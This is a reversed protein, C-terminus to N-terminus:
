SRCDPIISRKRERGIAREANRTPRVKLSLKRSPIWDSSRTPQARASPNRNWSPNSAATAIITTMTMNPIASVANEAHTPRAM